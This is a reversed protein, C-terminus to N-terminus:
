FYYENSKGFCKIVVPFNGKKERALDSLVFSFELLSYYKKIQNMYLISHSYFNNTNEFMFSFSDIDKEWRLFERIIQIEQISFDIYYDLLQSKAGLDNFYTNEIMLNQEHNYESLGTYDLIDFYIKNNVIRFNSLLMYIEGLKKVYCGTKELQEINSWNNKSHAQTLVQSKLNIKKM